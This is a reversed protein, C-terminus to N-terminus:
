CPTRSVPLLEFVDCLFKGVQPRGVLKQMQGAVLSPDVKEGTVPDLLQCVGGLEFLGSFRERVRNSFRVSVTTARLRGGETELQAM